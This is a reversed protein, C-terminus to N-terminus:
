GSVVVETTGAALVQRLDNQALAICGDTPAYDPRAVHLFIASGRGRQIPADNWGLVGIVDYAADTRWLEEYHGDYPLRIIRNYDRENPGDCWGDTPAIPEVPVACEPARGRDARYLVRRLPLVGVPTAGDGEQKDRRVGGRGLAARFVTGRLVLRGDPHVIVQM